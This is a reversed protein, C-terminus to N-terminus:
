RSREPHPLDGKEFFHDGHEEARGRPDPHLIIDADPYRALVRREAAVVIDHAVELTVDPDLDMHAQIHVYPGSSRTRLQHVNTIEGSETILRAIEQRDAEPLERDMLHHSAARFVGFSTWVLWAAVLLGAIADLVPASLVAAAAVGVLVVANSALDAVYHARDGAIALSRTRREVRTQVAVLVGTLAMSFIMVGLAWGENEIPRPDAIRVFAERGLLAASVLVLTAQVLSAFAEAKGHGYRHEADPPAAAYRVAFFTALSAALDLASDALSALLAVSGSAQWAATKAGILISAVAVSLASATRTLAAKQEISLTPLTEPPPPPALRM